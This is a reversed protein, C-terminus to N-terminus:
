TIVDREKLAAIDDWGLGLALLVEETHEGAEPARTPAGPAGDFEVPSTVMPLTSGRGTDVGAVYGNARVQPDDHVEAPEQVVAWEGAFAALVTRWEALTREAFAAELIKVCARAHRRRADLDAFRPDGALEPRGILSCLSAWHGDPALVMLAVFRGDATRYPLMLPNWTAYRDPGRAHTGDGLRASVVDNQVQWMGAALLSSDVVTAEDTVARRYLATTVAAALGLAAAVDGFAPRTPAPWPAAPATFLHQMGSRAWYAGADYGGRGADPGRGGFATGSAYVISPNDARVGDVDIGLRRRAAPRLNTTFVDGAALLRGLLGRGEPTALDIGVSRKSRNAAQFFPDVGDHLPHLGATVLGRYPDGGRPHEVKVVDAGWEALLAGAMPVFVHTAVEVVRVGQLPATM